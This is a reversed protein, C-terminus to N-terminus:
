SIILHVSGQYIVIRNSKSKEKRKYKTTGVRSCSACLPGCTNKGQCCAPYGGGFCIGMGEAQDVYLAMIVMVMVSVMVMVMIVMEMVQDVYLALQISVLLLAVVSFLLMLDWAMAKTLAIAMAVAMTMYIAMAMTMAMTKTMAMTIAMTMAMTMALPQYLQKWMIDQSLQLRIRTTTGKYDKVLPRRHKQKFIYPFQERPVFASHVYAEFKWSFFEANKSNTIQSQELMTM